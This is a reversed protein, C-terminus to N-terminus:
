VDFNIDDLMRVALNVIRTQLDHRELYEAMTTFGIPYMEFVPTSPVLDSVPGYLISERRFDYVSPAHLLTLDPIAM